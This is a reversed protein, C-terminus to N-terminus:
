RLRPGGTQRALLIDTQSFVVDNPDGSTIPRDRNYAVFVNGAADTAAGFFDLDRRDFPLPLNVLGVNEPSACTLGQQCISGTHFAHAAVASSWVPRRALANSTQAIVMDWTTEASGIDGGLDPGAAKHALAYSVAVKGRSGAVVWPFVASPTTGFVDAASPSVTVPDTWTVGHDSSRVFYVPGTFDPTRVDSWVAYLNGSRDAAIVPFLAPQHGAAVSGTTWTLGDRSKAYELGNPDAYITYYVHDPGAVIPGQTSVNEAITVPGRFSRAANSSVWAL